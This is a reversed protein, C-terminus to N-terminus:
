TFVSHVCLDGLNAFICKDVYKLKLIWTNDIEYRESISWTRANRQSFYRINGFNRVFWTVSILIYIQELGMEKGNM